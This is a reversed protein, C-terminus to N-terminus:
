FSSIHSFYAPSIAALLCSSSIRRDGTLPLGNDLLWAADRRSEENVQRGSGAIISDIQRALQPLRFGLQRLLIEGPVSVTHLFVPAKMVGFRVEATM